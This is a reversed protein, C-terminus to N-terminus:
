RTSARSGGSWEAHHHQAGRSEGPDDGTHAFRPVVPEVMLPKNIVFAQSVGDLGDADKTAIAMIRYRTLSNQLRSPRASRADKDTILASQWVATAVSNKRLASDANGEDGGGGVLIGKNGRYRQDLAEKLLSDM